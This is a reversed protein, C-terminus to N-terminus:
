HPLDARFIVTDAGCSAHGVMTNGDASMAIPDGLTLGTMAVTSCTGAEECATRCVSVCLCDRMWAHNVGRASM